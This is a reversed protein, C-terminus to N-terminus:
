KAFAEEGKKEGALNGGGGGANTKRAQRLTEEKKKRKRFIGVTLWTKEKKQTKGGGEAVVWGL